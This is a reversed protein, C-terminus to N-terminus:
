YDDADDGLVDVYHSRCLAAHCMVFIFVKTKDLICISGICHVPQKKMSQDTTM